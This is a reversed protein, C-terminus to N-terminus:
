IYDFIIAIAHMDLLKKFKKNKSLYLFLELKSRKRSKLEEMILHNFADLGINNNPLKILEKNTYQRFIWKMIKMHGNFCAIVFLRENDIPIDIARKKFIEYLWKIMELHGNQCAKNVYRWWNKIIFKNDDSIELLLKVKEIHGKECAIYLANKIKNHIDIESKNKLSM